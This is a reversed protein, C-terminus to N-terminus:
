IVQTAYLFTRYVGGKVQVTYTTAVYCRLELYDGAALKMQYTTVQNGELDYSLGGATQFAMTGNKYLRLALLGVAAGSPGWGIGATIVYTGSHGAPITV